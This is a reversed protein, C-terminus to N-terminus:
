AQRDCGQFRDCVLHCLHPSTCSHAHAVTDSTVSSSGPTPRRATFACWAVQRRCLTDTVYVSVDLLISPRHEQPASEFFTVFAKLVEEVGQVTATNEPVEASAVVAATHAIYHIMGPMLLKVCHLLKQNGSTASLMVTKACHAATISIQKLTSRDFPHLSTLYCVVSKM